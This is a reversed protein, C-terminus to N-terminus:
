KVLHTSVHQNKKNSACAPMRAACYHSSNLRTSKRDGTPANIWSSASDDKSAAHEDFAFADTGQLHLALESPKQRSRVAILKNLSGEPGPTMGAQMMLRARRNISDRGARM